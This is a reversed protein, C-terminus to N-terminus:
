TGAMLTAMFAEMDAQTPENWPEMAPLRRVLKVARDVGAGRLSPGHCSAITEPGLGTVRDVSSQFKAHDTLVHWPSLLRAFATFGESWEAGPLDEADNAPGPIFGGFADSGWLVGTSPDFLARTSPSDYVPPRLAVLTRDGATFADGDAVVLCREPPVGRGHIQLHGFAMWSAVVTARPCLNLVEALNGVHDGDDHSVFVWRVDAPDVLSWAAELWTERVVPSGTDVLIPEPGRIVMSNVYLNGVLPVPFLHPIVWTEEAVQYPQEHPESM